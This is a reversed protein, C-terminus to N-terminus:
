KIGSLKKMEIVFDGRDYMDEEEEDSGAYDNFSVDSSHFSHKGHNYLDVVVFHKDRTFQYIVGTKGQFQVPGTIIVDDGVDLESADETLKEEKEFKDIVKKPPCGDYDAGHACARFFNKQKDSKYPM